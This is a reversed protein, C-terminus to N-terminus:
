CSQLFIVTASRVDVIETQEATTSQMYAVNWLREIGLVGVLWNLHKFSYGDVFKMIHLCQKFHVDYDVCEAICRGLKNSPRQELVGVGHM